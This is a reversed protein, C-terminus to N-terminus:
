LIGSEHTYDWVGEGLIIGNLYWDILNYQIYGFLEPDLPKIFVDQIQEDTGVHKIKVDGNAVFSRLQHYKIM